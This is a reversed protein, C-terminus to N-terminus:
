FESISKLFEDVARIRGVHVKMVKPVNEGAIKLVVFTPTGFREDAIQQIASAHDAVLPFRVDFRKKFIEVEYPSNNLGIGLIKMRGRLAPDADILEYLKNVTPAEAQCHPCYMNFIEIILVDAKVNSIHFRGTGTLGLYQRGASSEPIPYEIQQLAAPNVQFAHAQRGILCTGALCAAICVCLITIQKM